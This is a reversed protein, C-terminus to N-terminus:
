VTCGTLHSILIKAGIGILILGGTLEALTKYRNGFINGIKLGAFSLLFTVIGVLLSATWINVEVFALSVGVALADISTAIAMVLMHKASFSSDVPKEDKSLADKIMGVGLLALRIM